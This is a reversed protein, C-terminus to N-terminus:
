KKGFKDAIAKIDDASMGKTQGAMIAKMPGGYTGDKYGNLATTIEEATMDKVVKSKGMASKEFEVGHCGACGAESFEASATVSLLGLAAITIISKKIM